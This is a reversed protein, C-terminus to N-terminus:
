KGRWWDTGKGSVTIVPALELKLAIKSFDM